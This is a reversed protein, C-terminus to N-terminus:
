MPNFVDIAADEAELRAPRAGYALLPPGTSPTVLVAATGYRSAGEGKGEAM